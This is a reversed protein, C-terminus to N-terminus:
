PFLLLRPPGSVSSKRGLLHQARCVDGKKMVVPSDPTNRLKGSLLSLGLLPQIDQEIGLLDLFIVRCKLKM